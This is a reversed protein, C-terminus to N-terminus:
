WNFVGDITIALKCVRREMEQLASETKRLGNGKLVETLQYFFYKSSEM